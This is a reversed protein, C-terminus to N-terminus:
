LRAREANWALANASPLTFAQLGEGQRSVPYLLPAIGQGNQTFVKSCHRGLVRQVQHALSQPM